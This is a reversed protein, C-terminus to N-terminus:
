KGETQKFANILDTATNKGFAKTDVMVLLVMDDVVATQVEDAEVCIWKRTDVNEKMEKAVAEADAKDKLTVVVLSYAQSSMMPESYHISKIKSTDKLGTYYAVREPDTLDVETPETLSLGLSDVQAYLKNILEAAPHLAASAAGSPDTTVPTTQTPLASPTTPTTGTAGESPGTTGGMPGTTNTSPTTDVPEQYGGGCGVFLCGVMTLALLMALNKRKM